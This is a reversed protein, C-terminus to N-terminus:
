YLMIEAFYVDEIIGEGLVDNFITKMKIKLHNYDRDSIIQHTDPANLFSVIRDKIIDSMSVVKEKSAASSCKVILTLNLHIKETIASIPGIRIFLENFGSSNTKNDTGPLRIVETMWLISVTLLFLAVLLPLIIYIKKKSPKSNVTDSVPESETQKQHEQPAPEEENPAAKPIEVIDLDFKEKSEADSKKTSV